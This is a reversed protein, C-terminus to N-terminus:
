SHPVLAYNCHNQFLGIDSYSDGWSFTHLYGLTLRLTCVSITTMLKECLNHYPCSTNITVDNFYVFNYHELLSTNLGGDIVKREKEKRKKQPPPPTNLPPPTLFLKMKTRIPPISRQLLEVNLFFNINRNISSCVFMFKRVSSTLGTEKM